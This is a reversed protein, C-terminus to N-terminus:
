ANVKAAVNAAVVKRVWPAVELGKSELLRADAARVYVIVKM